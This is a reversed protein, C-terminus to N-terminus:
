FSVGCAVGSLLGDCGPCGLSRTHGDGGAGRAECSASVGCARRGFVSDRVHRLGGVWRYIVEAVGAFNVGSHVGPLTSLGNDSEVTGIAALVTWPLGPCTTAAQQYLALMVPPIASTATPSPASAGGGLLSAIGAGAAGAMLVVLTVLGAGVAALKGALGSSDAAGGGISM